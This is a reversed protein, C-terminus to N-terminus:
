IAKYIGHGAKEIRDAAELSKLIRHTHSRGAFAQALIDRTRVPANTKIFHYIRDTSSVTEDPASDSLPEVSARYFAWSTVRINLMDSQQVIRPVKKERDTKVFEIMWDVLSNDEAWSPTDQQIIKAQEASYLFWVWSGNQYESIDRPLAGDEFQLDKVSFARRPRQLGVYPKNQPYSYPDYRIENVVMFNVPCRALEWRIKELDTKYTSLATDFAQLLLTPNDAAAELKKHLLYLFKDSVFEQRFNYGLRQTIDSQYLITKYV